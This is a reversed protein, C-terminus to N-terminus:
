EKEIGLAKRTEDTEIASGTIIKLTDEIGKLYEQAKVANKSFQVWQEDMILRKCETIMDKLFNLADSKTNAQYHNILELYFDMDQTELRKRIILYENLKERVISDANEADKDPVTAGQFITSVYKWPDNIYNELRDATISNSLFGKEKLDRIKIKLKLLEQFGGEASFARERKKVEVAERVDLEDEPHDYQDFNKDGRQNFIELSM